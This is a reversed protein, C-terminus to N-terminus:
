ELYGYLGRVSVDGSQVTEVAGDPLQVLLGGSEDLALAHGRRIEDGQFIAVDQGLTVCNQRYFEMVAEKGSFLTKDMELLAELMHAAVKAPDVSHGSIMSLSTAMDQIDAPFDEVQQTCNIGIGVIAAVRHPQIVLETLIGCLKRKQWVLDNIWKIQPTIGVAKDVARCMAVAASCTLHMLKEPACDPRLIVSMYVGQGAPSAFSRGMRGRGGTQHGALVVTGHPAGELALCKAQTNTSDTVPLWLIQKRWPHGPSLHHLIQENM